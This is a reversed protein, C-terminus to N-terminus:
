GDASPSRTSNCTKKRSMTKTSLDSTNFHMAFNPHSKIFNNPSFTYINPIYSNTRKLYKMKKLM